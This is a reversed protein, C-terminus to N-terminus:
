LEWKVIDPNEDAVRKLMQGTESNPDALTIILTDIARTFPLMTWMWLYKKLKEDYSEIAITKESHKQPDFKEKKWKMLNDFEM